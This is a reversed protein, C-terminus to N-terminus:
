NYGTFRAQEEKNSTFMEIYRTGMMQRDKSMAIQAEEPSQFEVFATGSPRGYDMVLFVNEPTINNISLTGDNFWNVIDDRTVSFPLGRLRLVTSASFDQPAESYYGRRPPFKHGDTINHSIPGETM